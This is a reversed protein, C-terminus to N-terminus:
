ILQTIQNLSHTLSQTHSKEGNALEAIAVAFFFLIKCLPLRPFSTIGFKSYVYNQQRQAHLLPRYFETSFAPFASASSCDAYAALGTTHSQSNM